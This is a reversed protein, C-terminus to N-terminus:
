SEAREDRGGSSLSLKAMFILGIGIWVITRIKRVVALAVGEAATFGLAAFVLATGGEDVGVKLPLFPFIANVSRNVAEIVYAAFLTANGATADLILYAEAIGTCCTALEIAFIALFLAPRDTYFAIVREEFSRVGERRRDLFGVRLSWRGLLDLMSTLILVRRRIAIQLVVVPLVLALGIGAVIWQAQGAEAAISAFAVGGSLIFLVITFTYVLNEIFISSLTETTPMRQAAAAAKASEGLLPGAFTLSTVAEGAMRLAFLEHYAVTRHEPHIVLRWAFTRLAHRLGALVLLAWFISWSKIVNAVIFAPGTNYILLAFLAIGGLTALVALTHFRKSPSM